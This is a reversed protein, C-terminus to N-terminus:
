TRPRPLPHIGARPADWEVDDAAGAIWTAGRARPFSTDPIPGSPARIGAPGQVRDDQVPPVQEAEPQSRDMGAEAPGDTFQQFQPVQQHEELRNWM